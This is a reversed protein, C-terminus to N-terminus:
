YFGIAILVKAFVTFINLAGGRGVDWIEIISKKKYFQCNLILSM